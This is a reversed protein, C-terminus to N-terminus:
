FFLECPVIQRVDLHIGYFSQKGVEINLSTGKYTSFQGPAPNGNPAKNYGQIKVPENVDQLAWGQLDINITVKNGNSVFTVYGALQSQGAYIPIPTNDIHPTYTAWNGGYKTGAGWASENSGYCVPIPEPHICAQKCYSFKMAWGGGKAGYDEGEAWGGDSQIAENGSYKVLDAHAAIVVCNELGALPITYTFETVENHNTKYPLQGPAANKPKNAETGVYLQTGNMVWGDKTTYTIYLNEEDNGVIVTGANTHQGALLRVVVAEGCYSIGGENSISSSFATRTKGLYSTEDSKSVDKKCASFVLVLALAANFLKVM